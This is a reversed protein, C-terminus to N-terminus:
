SGYPTTPPKFRSFAFHRFARVPMTSIAPLCLGPLACSLLGRRSGHPLGIEIYLLGRLPSLPTRAMTREGRRSKVQSIAMDWPERWPSSEQAGGPSRAYRFRGVVRSVGHAVKKRGAPAEQM